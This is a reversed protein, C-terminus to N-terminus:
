DIASPKGGLYAAAKIAQSNTRPRRKIVRYYERMHDIQEKYQPYDPDTKFLHKARNGIFVPLDDAVPFRWDWKDEGIWGLGVYCRHSDNCAARYGMEEMTKRVFQNFFRPPRGFYGLQHWLWFALSGRQVRLGSGTICRSFILGKIENTLNEAMELEKEAISRISM